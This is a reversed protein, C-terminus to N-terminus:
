SSYSLGDGKSGWTGRWDSHGGALRMTVGFMQNRTNSDMDTWFTPELRVYLKLMAIAPDVLFWATTSGNSGTANLWLSEIADMIVGNYFNIDNNATSPRGDSEILITATKILDTPVVLIPKGGVEMPIGRDTLQKRLALRGTELNSETLVIGTSSANSQATGGDKRTHSTSFLNKTDGYRFVRFGNVVAGSTFGANFINMAYKAKTRRAAFGLHRYRDLDSNYDSDAIAEETVEIQEGYKHPTYDTEYTFLNAVKPYAAGEPVETLLPVGAVGGDRIDSENTTAVKFIRNVVDMGDYADKTQDFVDKFAAIAGRRALDGFRARTELVNSNAM